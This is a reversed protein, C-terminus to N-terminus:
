LCGDPHESKRVAKYVGVGQLQDGALMKVMVLAAMRGGKDANICFGAAWLSIEEERYCCHM